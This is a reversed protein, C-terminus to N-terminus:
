VENYTYSSELMGMSNFNYTKGSCKNDESNTSEDYYQINGDKDFNALMHNDGNECIVSYDGDDYYKTTKKTNEDITEIITQNKDKFEITKNEIDIKSLRGDPEFYAKTPVGEEFQITNTEIAGNSYYTKEGQMGKYDKDLEYKPTPKLKTVNVDELGMNNPVTTKQNQEVSLIAGNHFTAENTFTKNALERQERINKLQKNKDFVFYRYANKKVNDESIVYSGDDYKTTTTINGNPGYIYKSASALKDNTYSSDKITRGKPDYEAVFITKVPEAGNDAGIKGFSQTWIINDTNKDKKVIDTISDSKEKDINYITRTNEDEQVISHLKNDSTYIKEGEIKDIDEPNINIPELVEVDLKSQLNYKARNYNAIANAGNSNNQPYTANCYPETCYNNQNYKSPKLNVISVDYLGIGNVM